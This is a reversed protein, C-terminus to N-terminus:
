QELYAPDLSDIAINQYQPHSLDIIYYANPDLVQEDPHERIVRVTPRDLESGSQTVTATRRDSLTVITGPPYLGVIRIFSALLAPHFSGKDRLMIAFADKPVMAEKYPRVATLAEFVDCIHLIGTVPHLPVFDHQQPYGKGDHRHHHGWAAALDLPTSDEHALLIEAGTRCHQEILLREEPSLPGHKYLIDGSIKSKGIDHLLAARGVDLLYKNDWGFQIGTYVALAAVRVSHGITYDHYDPYVIHQMIDSFQNKIFQLMFESVAMANELDISNQAAAAGHARNVMDFLAQYVLTPSELLGASDKGQWSEKNEALAKVSTDEYQSALSISEIGNQQFLQRAENLNALPERLSAATKFFRTLEDSSVPATFIIGGCCLMKATIIFQKGVVSPGILKKGQYIFSDDVIGIFLKEQETARFFLDFKNKLESLHKKVQPHNELYLKQLSVCRCLLMVVDNLLQESSVKNM